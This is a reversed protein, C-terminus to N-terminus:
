WNSELVQVAARLGSELAGEMYGYFAMCTHEGAFLLRKNFPGYLFKGITCVQGPAPCSYGAMTHQIQPWPVFKERTVEQSYGPYISGIRKRFYASRDRSRLANEAAYGGAFVTLELGLGGIQGDTGEWTLGLDDSTGSPATGQPIWFRSRVNSLYKIAPGMSMQMGPPLAPSIQISSWVSPPVALIVRDGVFSRHPTHCVVRDEKLEIRQVPTNRHLAQPASKFIDTELCEALAQNGDVCRFIESATWFGLPDDKLEGGKMLALLGLYSQKDTPAANTNSLDVDLAARLDRSFKKGLGKLWDHVSRRDWRRAHPSTWPQDPDLKSAPDRLTKIANTMEDFIDEARKNGIMRGRLRLPMELRAGRYDDEPTIVSLGLGFHQALMLWVPHNLGILEAGGEITRGPTFGQLSHVRGGVRDRAELVTVEVGCKTLCWAASLGAFGGGVILVRDKVPVRPPAISPFNRLYPPLDERYAERKDHAQDYRKQGSLREHRFRRHLKAYLSRSM